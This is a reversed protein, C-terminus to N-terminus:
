SGLLTKTGVEGTQNSAGGLITSSRGQALARRRREREAEKQVEDNSIKPADSKSSFLNGM